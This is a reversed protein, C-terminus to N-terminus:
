PDPYTTTNTLAKYLDKMENLDTVSSTMGTGLQGFKFKHQDENPKARLHSGVSFGGDVPFATGDVGHCISCRATFIADGNAANGDMGVNSFTITGDPYTGATTFDYLDNVDIAQVMLFDVLDWIQTDTLIQSYDPMQDGLTPNTDPDYTSLDADPARRGNPDKIANFMEQRSLNTGLSLLNIGSVNPRSTKPARNIYAGANGLRDWGHCQKCRFFDKFDNYISINPDSPDFGTEVAWFKDFMRGGNIGEGLPREDPYKTTNTLAKYLDKMENLDTVMSTMATGLQGFKFKHQDENPKARLHKGVTFDGDVPIATGDAGHCSACRATFIADGNAADGDLGVNNFTITGSSYAGATTFEYLDNVDIADVLLFEVLEWILADTLILSYDPMQDGITPNTDPDYTSLDADPARRDTSKKIADFMEQKSYQAGLTLLDIGSVNPRTTKPARNIYAGANGLRDWGHCQKCRFFDKFGNYTALNPDSQDFGTEVAWFKDFMRGGNMGDPGPAAPTVPDDDDSCGIFALGTLLLLFALALIKTLRM